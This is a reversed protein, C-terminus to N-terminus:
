LTIAAYPNDPVMSTVVAYADMLRAACERADYWLQDNYTGSDSIAGKARLGVGQADFVARFLHYKQTVVLASEANFVNAVRWMTDYTHYGGPDCYIASAPVGHAVAYAKMAAPEDYHESRGDGSMVILPSLGQNYLEVAAEVRNELIPSLNGDPMVSAGLVVICDYASGSEVQDQVAAPDESDFMALKGSVIVWANIALVAVLVAVVVYSVGKFFGRIVRVREQRM